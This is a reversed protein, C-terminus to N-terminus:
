RDHDGWVVRYVEAEVTRSAEGHFPFRNDLDFTARYARDVRGGHEAVFGEVFRRSGANHVSYSVNAVRAATALFPEDGRSGRQAGFPPNTLVTVSPGGGRSRVPARGADALVWDVRDAVGLTVCHERGAALADPDCELALVRAGLSAAGVTLVGTGAGLDVVCSGLDGVMAAEQLISAAVGPPTPYQELDPDPDPFDGVASLRRELERRRV